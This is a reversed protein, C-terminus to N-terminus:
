QQDSDDFRDHIMVALKDYLRSLKIRVAGESRKQLAAIQKTTLKQEVALKILKRDEESFEGLVEEKVRALEEDSMEPAFADAEVSWVESIFRLERTYFRPQIYFLLDRAILKAALKKQKAEERKFEHLVNIATKFFWGRPDPHELLEDGEAAARLFVEDACDSAAQRDGKLKVLCYKLVSPYHKEALENLRREKETM